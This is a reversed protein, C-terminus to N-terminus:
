LQNPCSYSYGIFKRQFDEQSYVLSDDSEVTTRMKQRYADLEHQYTQYLEKIQEYDNRSYETGCKLITYDFEPAKRKMFSYSPFIGELLWCIRNVICPNSGIKKQKEYYELFTIMENTKQPYDILGQIGQIRYRRFQEIAKLESNEIYQNYKTKLTSYVYTMFYPKYPAVIRKNLEYKSPDPLNDPKNARPSYWYEPM